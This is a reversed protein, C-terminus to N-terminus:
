KIDIFKKKNIDNKKSILLSNLFKSLNYKQPKYPNNLNKITKKFRLSEVYKISKIINKKKM